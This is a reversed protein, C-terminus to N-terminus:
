EQVSTLSRNGAKHIQHMRITAEMKIPKQIGKSMVNKEVTFVISYSALSPISLDGIARKSTPTALDAHKLLMDSMFISRWM